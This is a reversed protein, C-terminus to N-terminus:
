MEEPEIPEDVDAQTYPKLIEPRYAALKRERCEACVRTLPIGQGDHEWWSNEKTHPPHWMPPPANM